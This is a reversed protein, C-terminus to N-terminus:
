PFATASPQPHADGVLERCNLHFSAHSGSSVRTNRDSAAAAAADREGAPRRGADVTASERMFVYIRRKLQVRCMWMRCRQSYLQVCREKHSRERAHGVGSFM